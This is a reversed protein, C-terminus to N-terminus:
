VSRGHNDSHNNAVAHAVSPTRLSATAKPGCAGCRVLYRSTRPNYDVWAVPTTLNPSVM